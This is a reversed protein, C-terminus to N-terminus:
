QLNIKKWLIDDVTAIGSPFLTASLEDKLVMRLERMGQMGELMELPANKLVELCRSYARNWNTRLAEKVERERLKDQKYVIYFQVHAMRHGREVKPNFNFELMDPLEIQEIVPAPPGSEQSPAPRPVIFVVGAGGLVAGAVLFLVPPLRSARKEKQEGENKAEKADAL